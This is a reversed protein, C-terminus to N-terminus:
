YFAARDAPHCKKNKCAPLDHKKTHYAVIKGQFHIKPHYLVPVHKQIESQAKIPHQCTKAQWQDCNGLTKVGIKAFVPNLVVVIKLVPRLIFAVIKHHIPIAFAFINGMGDDLHCFQIM